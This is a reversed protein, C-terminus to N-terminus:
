KIGLYFCIGGIILTVIILIVWEIVTGREM